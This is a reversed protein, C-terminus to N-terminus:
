YWPCVIASPTNVRECIETLHEGMRLAHERSEIACPGGIFALPAGDGFVVRRINGYGVEVRKGM